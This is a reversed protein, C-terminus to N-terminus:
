VPPLLFAPFFLLTSTTEKLQTLFPQLPKFSKKQQEGELYEALPQPARACLPVVFPTARLVHRHGVPRVAFTPLYTPPDM